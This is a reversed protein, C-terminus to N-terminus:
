VLLDIGGWHAVSKEVVRTWDESRTVDLSEGIALDGAPSLDAAADRVLDHEVDALVVRYSAGALSRAIGLGIGQAAGTVLAVKRDSAGSMRAVRINRDIGGDLTEARLTRNPRAETGRIRIVM